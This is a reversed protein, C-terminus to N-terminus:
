SRENWGLSDQNISDGNLFVAISLTFKGHICPYMGTYTNQPNKLEANKVTQEKAQFILYINNNM